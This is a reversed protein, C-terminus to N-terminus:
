RGNKHFERDFAVMAGGLMLGAFFALPNFDSLVSWISLGIGVLLWFAYKRRLTARRQATM